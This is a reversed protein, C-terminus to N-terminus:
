KPIERSLTFFIMLKRNRRPIPSRRRDLPRLQIPEGLDDVPPQELILTPVAFLTMCGFPYEFPQPVFVTKGAAIRDDLIVHTLMLPTAPLHEHQKRMCRTMRLGIKAFCQHGDTPDFLLRVEKREIQRVAIGTVDPGIRRRRRFGPNITVNVGKGEKPTHRLRNEIVIVLAQHGADQRVPCAFPGPQKTSEQRMVQDTIAIAAKALAIVLSADFSQDTVRPTVEHHRHWAERRPSREIEPKFLLAALALGVDQAPLRLRDSLAEHAIEFGHGFKRGGGEIGAVLCSPPDTGLRQHTVLGVIVGHRNGITVPLDPHATIDILNDDAAASPDDGTV